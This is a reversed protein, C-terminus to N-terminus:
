LMFYRRNSNSKIRTCPLTYLNIRTCSNLHAQLGNYAGSMKAAGDFSEGILKTLPINLTDLEKKVINYLAEGTGSTSQVLAIMKEIIKGNLVYRICICLQDM